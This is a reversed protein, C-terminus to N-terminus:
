GNALATVLNNVRESIKEISNPDSIPTRKVIIAENEVQLSLIIEDEENEEGEEEYIVDLIIWANHIINENDLATFGNENKYEIRTSTKIEFKKSHNGACQNLIELGESNKFIMKGARKQAQILRPIQSPDNITKKELSRLETDM